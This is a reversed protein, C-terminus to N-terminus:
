EDCTFGLSTYLSKVGEFSVKDDSIYKKISSNNEKLKKIDIKNYDITVNSVVKDSQKKIDITYGGYNNNEEKYTATFYTEFNSLIEEDYSTVTEKLNVKDVIDGKIHINVQSNLKYNNLDDTSTMTCSKVYEKVKEKDSCGSILVVVLFLVLVYKKM